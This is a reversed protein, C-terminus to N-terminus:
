FSRIAVVLAAIALAAVVLAALLALVLARRAERVLREDLPRPDDSLLLRLARRLALFGLWRQLM